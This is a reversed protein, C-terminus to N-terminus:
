WPRKKDNEYNWVAEPQMAQKLRMRHEINKTELKNSGTCFKNKLYEM